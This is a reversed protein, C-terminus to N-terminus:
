FSHIIQNGTDLYSKFLVDYKNKDEFENEIDIGKNNNEEVKIKKSCCSFIIKKISFNEKSNMLLIKNRVYSRDLIAMFFNQLIGNLLILYLYFFVPGM